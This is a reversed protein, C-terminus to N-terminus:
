NLLFLVVVIMLVICLLLLLLLLAVFGVVVVVVIVVVVVVAVQVTANAVVANDRVGDFSLTDALPVSDVIEVMEDMDSSVTIWARM